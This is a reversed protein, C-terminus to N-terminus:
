VRHASKEKLDKLAKLDELQGLSERFVKNGKFARHVKHEMQVRQVQNEKFVRYDKHEM